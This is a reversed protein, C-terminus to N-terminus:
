EPENWGYVREPDFTVRPGGTRSKSYYWYTLIAGGQITDPEGLLRQVQNKTMGLQLKRWAIKSSPIRNAQRPPQAELQQVRNSLSLVSRELLEIKEADHATVQPPILTVSITLLLRAILKEKM